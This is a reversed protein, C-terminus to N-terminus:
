RGASIEGQIELSTSHIVRWVYTLPGGPLRRTRRREGVLLMDAREEEGRRRASWENLNESPQRM